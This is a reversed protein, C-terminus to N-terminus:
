KHIKGERRELLLWELKYWFFTQPADLREKGDKDQLRTPSGKMHLEEVVLDEVREGDM